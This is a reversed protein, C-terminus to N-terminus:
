PAKVSPSQAVHLKRLDYYDPMGRRNFPTYWAEQNDLFSLSAPVPTSIGRLAGARWAETREFKRIVPAGAPREYPVLGAVPYSVASDGAWATLTMLATLLSGVLGKCLSCCCTAHM